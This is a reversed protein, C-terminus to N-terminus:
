CPRGAGPHHPSPPTVPAAPQALPLPSLSPPPHNPPCTNTISPASPPRTPVRMSLAGGGEGEGAARGGAAAGQRTVDEGDAWGSAAARGPATVGRLSGREDGAETVRRWSGREHCAMKVRRRSRGGHHAVRLTQAGCVRTRMRAPQVGGAPAPRGPINPGADAALLPPTARYQATLWYCISRQMQAIMKDLKQRYGVTLGVNPHIAPLAIAKGSPSCLKRKSKIAM